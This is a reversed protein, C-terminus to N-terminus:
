YNFVNDTTNEGNNNKLSIEIQKKVMQHAETLLGHVDELRNLRFKVIAYNNLIEPMFTKVRYFDTESTKYNPSKLIELMRSYLEICEEPNKYELLQTLEIYCDICDNKVKLCNKFIEIAEDQRKKTRAYIYALHKEVELNFEKPDRCSEFCKQAEVYNSMSLKIQGLGFCAEVNKQNSNLAKTYFSFAENYNKNSHYIKASLCYICSKIEELNRKQSPNLKDKSNISEKDKQNFKMEGFELLLNLKQSIAEAKDNKNSLLYFNALNLLLLFFENGSDSGSYALKIKDFCRMYCESNHISNYDIM